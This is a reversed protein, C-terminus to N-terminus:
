ISHNFKVMDQISSRTGLIACSDDLATTVIGLRKSYNPLRSMTLRTWDHKLMKRWIHKGTLKSVRHHETYSGEAYSMLAVINESDRWIFRCARKEAIKVLSAVHITEPNM